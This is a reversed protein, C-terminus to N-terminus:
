RAPQVDLSTPTTAGASKLLEHLDLRVYPCEAAPRKHDANAVYLVGDQPVFLVNHLNSKMAVPRSMLWQSVEADIQGHREAVRARLTQLRDGASLVVADTIGEGLLPHGEGPQVFQISEPTAAVGVARKTKGDAFVYFYECTRPSTRWLDLVEDLTACEELARRMLTAMPVGDWQGEGRGGMEGLSVGRANMGSVSGVFGAYGVNVFPLKGDVSVVFTTAADQLGILTMYDLVRGHYLKGDKTASGFVAFGSCHFLEPFVNVVEASRPAWGLSGALARVETKHDAPIHPALRAYAAELDHRFWRGTRITEVTGFTALVSDLCRQAEARLLEGHARGVEEPTGRLIAVRQGDIWRLEGHEVTRPAARPSTLEVSPALIELARRVGRALQQELERRELEVVRFGAWRDAAAQEAPESLTLEVRVEAAQLKLSGAQPFSFSVDEASWREAAADYKVQLLGTLLLATTAPDSTALLPLHAAVVTGSGVLRGVIGAPKLHDDASVAGRGVFVVRHAPLALATSDTQRVLQIPFEPHSVGLDFTQDDYRTLRVEIRQERGDIPLDIVASATFRGQAGSSLQLFPKIQAALRAGDSEAARLSPVVLLLMGIALLRRGGSVMLRM